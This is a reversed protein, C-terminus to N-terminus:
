VSPVGSDDCPLSSPDLSGHKPQHDGDAADAAAAAGRRLLQVNHKYEDYSNLLAELQNTLGRITELHDRLRQRMRPVGEKMKQNKPVSWYIAKKNFSAMREIIQQGWLEGIHDPPCHVTIYIEDPALIGLADEVALPIFSYFDGDKIAVAGAYRLHETLLERTWRSSWDKEPLNWKFSIYHDLTPM